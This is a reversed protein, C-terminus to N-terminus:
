PRSLGPTLTTNVMSEVAVAAVSATLAVRVRIPALAVALGQTFPAVRAGAVGNIKPGGTAEMLVLTGGPRMKGAANRAVDLALAIDDGATVVVHDIPGHLGDFSRSLATRGTIIVDAGEARARRATERGIGAGGGIVVVTQGRLRPTREASAGIVETYM